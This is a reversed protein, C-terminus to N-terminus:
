ATKPRLARLAAFCLLPGLLYIVWRPAAPVGAVLQVRLPIASIQHAPENDSSSASISITYSGPSSPLTIQKSYIEYSVSGNSGTGIDTLQVPSSQTGGPGSLVVFPAAGSWNAGDSWAKAQITVTSGAILTAGQAFSVVALKRSHSYPTYAGGDSNLAVSSNINPDLNPLYYVASNSTDGLYVVDGKNNNSTNDQPRNSSFGVLTTNPMGVPFADQDNYGDLNTPLISSGQSNVAYEYIKAHKDAPYSAWRTYLITNADRYSPYISEEGQGIINNLNTGSSSMTWIDEDVPDSQGGSYYVINAGTPPSFCPASKEDSTFTLQAQGTGDLNMLWIQGNAGSVGTQTNKYVIRLGDPSFNPDENRGSGNSTLQTLSNDAFNYLFVQLYSGDLTPGNNAPVGLPIGAFVISSGDPSFKPNVAYQVQSSGIITNPLSSPLTYLQITGDITNPSPTALYSSYVQYAIRGTFAPNAGVTFTKDFHGINNKPPYYLVARATYTGDPWGSPITFNFTVEGMTNNPPITVPLSNGSNVQTLPTTATPEIETAVYYTTSQNGTVICPIPITGGPGVTPIANVTVSPSTQAESVAPLSVGAAIALCVVRSFSKM